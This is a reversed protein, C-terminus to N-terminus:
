KSVARVDDWASHYIYQLRGASDRGLAQLHAQKDRAIRVDIWAPPIALAAIRKRHFGNVPLSRRLDVFRVGEGHPIRPITLEDATVRRLGLEEIAAAEIEPLPTSGNAM